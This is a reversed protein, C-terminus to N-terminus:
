PALTAVEYLGINEDSTVLTLRELVAQAVLLRDFPDGHHLPLKAVHEAHEYGVLLELFGCERVRDAFRYPVRLKGEAVKNAVEWVSAASVFVCEAREIARKAKQGIKKRHTAGGCLSM